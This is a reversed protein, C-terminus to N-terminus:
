GDSEEEVPPMAPTMLAIEQPTPEMLHVVARLANFHDGTKVLMRKFNEGVTSQGAGDKVQENPESRRSGGPCDEQAAEGFEDIVPVHASRIPETKEKLPRLAVADVVFLAQM